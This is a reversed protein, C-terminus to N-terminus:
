HSWKYLVDLIPLDGSVSFANIAALPQLFPSVPSRNSLPVM